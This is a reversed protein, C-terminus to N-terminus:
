RRCRRERVSHPVAPSVFSSVNTTPPSQPTTTAVPPRGESSSLFCPPADGLDQSDTM